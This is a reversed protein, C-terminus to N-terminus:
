IAALYTSRDARTVETGGFDVTGAFSGSVFCTGDPTGIIVSAVPETLVGVHVFARSWTARTHDLRDDSCAGLAAVVVFAHRTRLAGGGVDISVGLRAATAGM